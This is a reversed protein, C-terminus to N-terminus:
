TDSEPVHSYRVRHKGRQWFPEKSRDRAYLAVVALCLVLSLAVFIIGFGIVAPVFFHHTLTSSVDLLWLDNLCGDGQMGDHGLGGFLLFSTNDQKWAASDVRGGPLATHALKGQKSFSAPADGQSSGGMWEWKGLPTYFRWQDSLLKASWIDSPPIKDAGEGGFLWLFNSADTWTAGGRRCGPVSDESLEGVHGYLGPQGPQTHGKLFKWSDNAITYRWLDSTYGSAIHKSRPHKSLVNGGFMYLTDPEVLWTMAGNRGLPYDATEHRSLSAPALKSSALEEWTLDQLNLRWMDTMIYNSGNIGGFIYLHTETCWQATDGRAAPGELQVNTENGVAHDPVNYMGRLMRWESRSTNFVWLDGLAKDDEALGGFVVMINGTGCVASLQRPQPIQPSRYTAVTLNSVTGPHMQRWTQNASSFRWLDNLLTSVSTAGNSMGMGGFMWAIGQEDQWVGMGSRGGPVDLVSLENAKQSGSLWAMDQSKAQGFLLCCFTLPVIVYM